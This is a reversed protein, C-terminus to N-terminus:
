KALKALKIVTIVWTAALIVITNFIAIGNFWQHKAVRCPLIVALPTFITLLIGVAWTISAPAPPSVAYMFLLSLVVWMYLVHMWGATSLDLWWCRNRHNPWMHGTTRKDAGWAAHMVITATLAGAICAVATQLPAQMYNWILGCIVPVIILDAWMGGHAVFPMDVKWQAKKENVFTGDGITAFVQAWFITLLVVAVVINFHEFM